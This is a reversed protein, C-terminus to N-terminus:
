MCLKLCFLFMFILGSLFILGVSRGNHVFFYVDGWLLWLIFILVILICVPRTVFSIGLVVGSVWFTSPSLSQYFLVLCFIGTLFIFLTVLDLPNNQSHAVFHPNLALAMASLFAGVISHSIRFALFYVVLVSATSFLLNTLHFADVFGLNPTVRILIKALAVRLTDFFFYYGRLEHFPWHPIPSNTLFASIIHLYRIGAKQIAPEDVTLGFDKNIFLGVVFFVVAILIGPVHKKNKQLFHSILIM